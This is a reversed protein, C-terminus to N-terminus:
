FKATEALHVSRMRSRLDNPAVKERRSLLERVRL